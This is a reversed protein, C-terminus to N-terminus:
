FSFSGRFSMARLLLICGPQPRPHCSVSFPAPQPRSLSILSLGQQRMGSCVHGVSRLTKQQLTWDWRGGFGERVRGLGAQAVM